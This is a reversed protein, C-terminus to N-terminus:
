DKKELLGLEEEYLDCLKHKGKSTISGWGLAAPSEIMLGDKVMSDILKRYEEWSFDGNTADKCDMYIDNGCAGPHLVPDQRHQYATYGCNVAKLVTLRLKDDRDM